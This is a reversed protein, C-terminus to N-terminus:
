NMGSKDSEFTMYGTEKTFNHPLDLLSTNTEVKTDHITYNPLLFPSWKMTMFSMQASSRSGRARTISFYVKIMGIEKDNNRKDYIFIYLMFEGAPAVQPLLQPYRNMFKEIDLNRAEYRGKYPCRHLYQPYIKSVATIMMDILVKNLGTSNGAMLACFDFDMDLYFKKMETRDKYFLKLQVQLLKNLVTPYNRFRSPLVCTVSVNGYDIPGTFDVSLNLIGAKNRVPKLDCVVNDFLKLNARCFIKTLKFDFNRNSTTEIPNNKVQKLEFNKFHYFILVTVLFVKSILLM